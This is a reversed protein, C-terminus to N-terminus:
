EILMNSRQLHAGADDIRFTFLYQNNTSFMGFRTAPVLMERNAGDFETMVLKDDHTSYIRYDDLWKPKGTLGLVEFNFSENTELDYSVVKEALGVLIFRGGANYTLWDMGDAVAVTIEDQPNDSFPSTIITMETGRAIAFYDARYYHTFAAFIPQPDDYSRMVYNRDRYYIGVVQKGDVIAVYTLKGDGYVDYNTVGSVLPASITKSNIEFRRLDSSTTTGFITRSDNGLFHPGNINTGFLHTLNLSNSVDRRDLWLIEHTDGINRQLLIYNSSSDWEIINFTDAAAGPLITDPIPLDNVRINQPDSIDILKLTRTAPTEHLLIWNGNPSNIVWHYNSFNSISDTKIDNPVLRAYNLWRVEAPKLNITKHWDRYGDLEYRITNAGPKVSDDRGPTTFNLQHDNLFIRAGSPSSQFQVLSIRDVTRQELDFRFGMIWVTAGAVGVVIALVMFFYAIIRKILRRRNNFHQYMIVVWYVVKRSSFISTKDYAIYQNFMRPFIGFPVISIFPFVYSATVPNGTFLILGVAALLLLGTGGAL